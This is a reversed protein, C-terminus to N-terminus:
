LGSGSRNAGPYRDQLYEWLPVGDQTIYQMEPCDLSLLPADLKALLLQVPQLLKGVPSDLFNPVPSSETLETVFWSSVRGDLKGAFTFLELAFCILNNSKLFNSLNLVGNVPNALDVGTFSNVRGVNGGVNAFIPYRLIFGVIDLNLNVLSYPSPTAYWNEPIREHGKQYVFNDRDGSV